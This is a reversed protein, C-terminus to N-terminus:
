FVSVNADFNSVYRIREDERGPLEFNLISNIKLNTILYMALKSKRLIRRIFSPEYNALELQWSNDTNFTFRHFGPSNGYKSLSEMFDNAIIVFIFFDSKFETKAFQAWILHQSLGAGSAAFSYVRKNSTENQM